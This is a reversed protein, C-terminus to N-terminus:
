STMGASLGSVMTDETPHHAVSTRWTIQSLALARMAAHAHTLIPGHVNLALVFSPRSAFALM